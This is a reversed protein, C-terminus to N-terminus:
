TRLLDRATEVAHRLLGGHRTAAPALAAFWDTLPVLPPLTSQDAPVPLHLQDAVACIIRSAEDDRGSHAMEVLSATGVARELLLAGNHHALVRAAGVGAWWAMLAGGRREEDELAIKLLAPVGNRRVPLLQSTHTTMQEGDPTLDWRALYEDFM